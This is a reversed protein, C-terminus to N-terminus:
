RTQYHMRLANPLRELQSIGVGRFFREIMAQDVKELMLEFDTRDEGEIMSSMSEFISLLGRRASIMSQATMGATFTSARAASEVLPGLQEHDFISTARQSPDRLLEAVMEAELGIALAGPGPGETFGFLIPVGVPQTLDFGGSHVTELEIPMGFQPAGVELLEQLSDAVLETEFLELVWATSLGSSMLMARMPDQEFDLKRAPVSYSAMAGSFPLLLDAELDVGIMSGFQEVQARAMEGMGEAFQDITDLTLDYLGAVDFNAGTVAVADAPIRKMLAQPLPGMLDAVRALLSGSPLYAQFEVDINEGSGIAVSGAIWRLESVGLSELVARPDPGSEQEPIMDLWGTLAALDGFLEIQGDVRLAARAAQFRPNDLVSQGQVGSMREVLREFEARTSDSSEGTVIAFSSASFIMGAEFEGAQTLSRTPVGVRLAGRQLLTVEGSEDALESVIRVFEPMRENPELLLGLVPQEGPGAHGVYFTASGRLTHLLELVQRAEDDLAALQEASPELCLLTRIEDPMLDGLASQIGDPAAFFRYYNNTAIQARLEAASDLHVVLVADPPTLSLSTSTEALTGSAPMPASFLLPTLSLLSYLM